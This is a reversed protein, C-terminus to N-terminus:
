FNPHFIKKHSRETPGRFPLCHFFFQHLYTIDGSSSFTETSTHLSLRPDNLPHRTSPSPSCSPHSRLERRRASATEIPNCVATRAASIRTGRKLLASRILRVMTVGSTGYACGPRCGRPLALAVVERCGM